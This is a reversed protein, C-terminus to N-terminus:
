SAICQKQELRVARPLGPIMVRLHLIDSWSLYKDARFPWPVMEQSAPHQKLKHVLSGNSQWATLTSNEWSVPYQKLGPVPFIVSKATLANNGQSALCQKLLPPPFAAPSVPLHVHLQEMLAYNEQSAIKLKLKLGTSCPVATVPLTKQFQEVLTSSGHSATPSAEIWLGLPLACCHSPLTSPAASGTCWKGMLFHLKLEPGLPCPVSIVSLPLHLLVASASNRWFLIRLKLELGWTCPESAVPLLLRLQKM